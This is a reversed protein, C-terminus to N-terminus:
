MIDEVNIKDENNHSNEVPTEEYQGNSTVKGGFNNYKFINEVGFKIIAIGVVDRFTLSTENILTDLYAFNSTEKIAWCIMIVSVFWNLVYLATVWVIVRETFKLTRAFFQSKVVGLDLNNSGDKSKNKNRKFIQM